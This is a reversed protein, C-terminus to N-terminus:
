GDAEEEDGTVAATIEAVQEAIEQTPPTSSTGGASGGAKIDIDFPLDDDEIDGLDIDSVVANVRTRLQEGVKVFERYQGQGSEIEDKLVVCSRKSAFQTLLGLLEEDSNATEFYRELTDQGVKKALVPCRGGYHTCDECEDPFAEEPDDVGRHPRFKHKPEKQLGLLRSRVRAQISGMPLDYSRQIWESTARYLAEHGDPIWSQKERLDSRVERLESQKHELTSESASSHMNTQM